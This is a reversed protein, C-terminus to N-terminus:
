SMPFWVPVTFLRSVLPPWSLSLLRMHKLLLWTARHLCKVEWRFSKKLKPLLLASSAKQLQFTMLIGETLANLVVEVQSGVCLLMISLLPLTHLHNVAARVLVIVPSFQFLLVALYWQQISSQRQGFGVCWSLKPSPKTQRTQIFCTKHTLFGIFKMWLGKYMLHTHSQHM